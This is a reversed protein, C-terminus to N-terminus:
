VVCLITTPESSDAMSSPFSRVSFLPPASLTSASRDRLGPL